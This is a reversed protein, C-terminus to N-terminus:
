SGSPALLPERPQEAASAETDPTGDREGRRIRPRRGYALARWLWEAPGFQFYRLWIPSLLLQVSWIGFVAFLLQYREWYGFQGLGYGEFILVCAMTEFLYNSLPMRGVARLRRTLFGIWGARVLLMVAAIHGMAVAMRGYNYAAQGLASAKTPDFDAWIQEFGTYANLPVGIGYGLAAMWIYFGRSRAGTFVGLKLLGMGILMMGGMDSIGFRYMGVSEIMEVMKVRYLFSQIYDGRHAALERELREPSPAFEEKKEKWAKIAEQEENSLDRDSTKKAEADAAKRATEKLENDALIAKPILTSILLFGGFLLWGPRVKRLPFLALGLLGYFYLVDGYWFLYAHLLGFLTLWLCRRLYIDAAGDSGSREARATLLLMGAGFLMSFICRMKGEFFVQNTFWYALNADEANGFLRPSRDAAAPLGFSLINM